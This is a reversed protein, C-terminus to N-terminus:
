EEIELNVGTYDFDKKKKRNKIIALACIMAILALGGGIITDTQSLGGPLSEPKQLSDALQGDALPAPVPEEEGEAIGRGESTQEEPPAPVQGDAILEEEEGAPPLTEEAVFEEAEPPKLPSPLTGSEGEGGGGSVTPAPAMDDNSQSIGSDSWYKINIPGNVVGKSQLDPNVAWIEKWSEAHGLLQFAVQRINEGASIQHYAPAINQDEFYFLLKESDQPRSPSPYYVKDGVKVARKKLHPNITYLTETQDSNFIKNSIDTLTEGPRAIYVGNVLFNGVTYPVTKIKKYPIWTRKSTQTASASSNNFFGAGPSSDEQLATESSDTEPYDASNDALYDQASPDDSEGDKAEETDEEAYYEEDEEDIYYYVEKDEEPDLGETSEESLDEAPPIQTGEGAEAVDTDPLADEEEEESYYDEEEEEVASSKTSEFFTCSSIFFLSFFLLFVLQTKM